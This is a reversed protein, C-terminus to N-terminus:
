DRAAAHIKLPDLNIQHTLPMGDIQGSSVTAKLSDHVSPPNTMHLLLHEGKLSVNYGADPEVLYGNRELSVFNAWTAADMIYFSRNVGDRHGVPMCTMKYMNNDTM